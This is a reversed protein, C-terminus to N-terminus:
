ADDAESDDAPVDIVPRRARAQRGKEALENLAEAGIAGSTELSQLRARSLPDLGLSGCLELVLRTTSNAVELLRVSVKAFGQENAVKDIHDAIMRDRALAEALMSVVVANETVDVHPAAVALHAILDPRLETAAKSVLRTSYAGHRVSLEHGPAFPSWIYGRAAKSISEADRGQAQSVQQDTM